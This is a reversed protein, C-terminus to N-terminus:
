KNISKYKNALSNFFKVDSSLKLNLLDQKAEKRRKSIPLKDILQQIKQILLRRYM